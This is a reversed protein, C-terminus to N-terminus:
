NIIVQFTVTRTQGGAVTGLSVSIANSTFRGADADTADTLPSGGLTLTGSRYTTGTPIGDNIALNPLSGGGLTNAVLQYTIISGPVANSGGFPDLVTATKTLGVTAAAVQYYGDDSGDAGTTGAVADGGGEGANPFTTGPAGTGTAAAAVLRLGGRDGDSLGGPTNAVVFITIIADPDLVPNGAGSVYVVDIGPEYVGDGDDIVISVATPDYNDGGLTSITSLVFAERGNGTNTLTFTLPTGTAGPTTPVNAGDEWDIVTDLLEDVTLSNLNSDVVVPTGGQDYTATATNDIVTGARTGTAYAPSALSLASILAVTATTAFLTRREGVTSITMPM